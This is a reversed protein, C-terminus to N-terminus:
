RGLPEDLLKAFSEGDYVEPRVVRPAADSIAAVLTTVRHARM